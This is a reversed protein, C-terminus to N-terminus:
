NILEINMIIDSKNNVDYIEDTDIIPIGENKFIYKQHKKIRLKNVIIQFVKEGLEIDLVEKDFINQLFLTLSININNDQDIYIHEPLNPICKVIISHNNLEYTLEDHWLPIYYLEHKHELKYIDANFLNNITPNLIYVSDNNLREKILNTINNITNKDIKFINSYKEIYGLIKLSINKDLKEFTGKTINKYNNIINLIINSININNECYDQLSQIFKNLIYEYSINENEENNDNEENNEIKLYENLFKYADQIQHFHENIENNNINDINKDPHHKLATKYYSKKLEKLTFPLNLDLIDCAKTLNM